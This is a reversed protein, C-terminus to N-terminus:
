EGLALVERVKEATDIPRVNFNSLLPHEMAIKAMEDLQQSNIGLESFRLPMNLQQILDALIEHFAEDERRLLKKIASYREDVWGELWKAQAVMCICAADSHGVGAYPGLIHVMWHSFGHVVSMTSIGSLAAAVQLNHMAEKNQKNQYVKPLNEIFLQISRDTMPDAMPNPLLGCRTNIAHDLGRIGTVMLLTKPTYSMIGPDYIIVEPGGWKMTLFIKLKTEENVPTGGFTWEATSLTTPIIISRIAPVKTSSHKLDFNPSFKAELAILEERTYAEETLCLQVFRVFDIVSGGGIGLIVDANAAKIIKAAEVINNIPAHEGVKDTIGIFKDGLAKELNRVVETTQNLTRSSAIFVRNYNREKVIAPLITNAEIDHFIDEQGAMRFRLPLHIQNKTM